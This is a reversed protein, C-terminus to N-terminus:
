MLRRLRLVSDTLFYSLSSFYVFDFSQKDKTHQKRAHNIILM